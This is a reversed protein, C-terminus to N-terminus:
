APMIHEDEVGCAARREILLHHRFRGFDGCDGLGAFNQEDGVAEGALVRDFGGLAEMCAKREGTQHQRAGIAISAAASRKRHAGDRAQRDLKETGTFLGFREFEEIRAADRAADKAM